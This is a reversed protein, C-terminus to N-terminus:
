GCSGGELKLVYVVIAKNVAVGALDAGAVAVGAGSNRGASKSFDDGGSGSGGYGRGRGAAYAGARLLIVGTTPFLKAIPRRAM